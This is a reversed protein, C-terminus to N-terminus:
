AYFINQKYFPASSVGPLGALAHPAGATSLYCDIFVVARVCGLYDPWYKRPGMRDMDIHRNGPVTSAKKDGAAVQM